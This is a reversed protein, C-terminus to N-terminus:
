SSGHQVPCLGHPLLHLEELLELLLVLVKDLQFLLSQFVILTDFWIFNFTFKYVSSFYFKFIKFQSEFQITTSALTISTKLVEQM